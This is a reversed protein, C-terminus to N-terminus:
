YADRQKNIKVEQKPQYGKIDGGLGAREGMESSNQIADMPRDAEAKNWVADEQEYLELDKYMLFNYEGNGVEATFADGSDDQILESKDKRRGDPSYKNVRTRMSASVVQWGIEQHFTVSQPRVWKLKLAKGQEKELERHVTSVDLKLPKTPKQRIEPREERKVHGSRNNERHMAELKTAEDAEVQSKTRRTRKKQETM